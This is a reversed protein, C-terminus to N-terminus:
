FWQYSVLVWGRLFCCFLGVGVDGMSICCGVAEFAFFVLGVDLVSSCCLVM